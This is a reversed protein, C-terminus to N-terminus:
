LRFGINNVWHRFMAAVILLLCLAILVVAVTTIWSRLDALAFGRGKRNMGLISGNRNVEEIAKNIWALTGRLDSSMLGMQEKVSKILEQNSQLVTASLNQLEEPVTRLATIQEAVAPTKQMQADFVALMKSSAEEFHDTQRQMMREFREQQMVMNPTMM